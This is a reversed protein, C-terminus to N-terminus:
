NLDKSKEKTAKKEVIVKFIKELSKTIKVPSKVSLNKEKLNVDKSVVSNLIKVWKHNKRILRKKVLSELSIEENVEYKKGIQELPIEVYFKKHPANTFGFKPLRQLLPMQGGEFGPRVGGGARARQGKHGRGSTRGRGTGLGRGVIRPKQRSKSPAKLERVMTEKAKKEM